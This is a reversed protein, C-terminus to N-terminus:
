PSAYRNEAPRPGPIREVGRGPNSALHELVKFVTEAEEPRGISAAIEEANRATAGQAALEGLVEKQLKLIDSAAKKGAEVGPQDYANVNILEAYLGVTREFLAILMGVTRPSIEPLTLTMSERGNETLARRTGLLFGSLYDGATTDPEVEVIDGDRERLVEVFLAFFNNTGDRLQQIFAHQDTSGKNGYVVLGQEASAGSRDRSKGVSEMVLQQLYRSFLLLRDKYPLVVMDKEGKGNGAHFWMLALLAAPNELTERNRTARDMARAGEILADIDIGQLAAPLLGVASLESTRGGVWDWMPFTEVWGEKQARESLQSGETTVAVAARAFSLGAAEFARAVEAAANRTEATGGSKSVVIVLTEDLRGELKSLIRDFGDPDTNDLFHLRLPDHDGGLADAVFQPGLASGGIGALLVSRFPKGKQSILEGSRLRHAFDRIELRTNKIEKTIEPEPAREPDRLWYHGVRRDEDVNVKVGAELSEMAELARQIRPEMERLFTESFRMRSIDLTIGTGGPACLYRKFREWLASPDSFSDSANV